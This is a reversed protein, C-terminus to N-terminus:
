KKNLIVFYINFRTAMHIRECSDCKAPWVVVIIGTKEPGTTQANRSNKEGVKKKIFLLRVTTDSGTSFIQSLSAENEPKLNQWETYM